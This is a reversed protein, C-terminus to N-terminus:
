DAHFSALRDSEDEGDAGEVSVAMWSATDKLPPGFAGLYLRILLEM